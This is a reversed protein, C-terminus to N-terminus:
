AEAIKQVVKDVVQDPTDAEWYQPAINEVPELVVGYGGDETQTLEVDGLIMLTEIADWRAAKIRLENLEEESV